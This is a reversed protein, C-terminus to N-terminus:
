RASVMSRHLDLRRLDFSPLDVGDPREVGADGGPQVAQRRQPDLTLHRLEAALLAPRRDEERELIRLVARAERYLHRAPLEVRQLEVQLLTLADVNEA